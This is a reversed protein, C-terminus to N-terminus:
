EEEKPLNYTDRIPYYLRKATQYFDTKNEWSYFVMSAIPAAYKLYEGNEYEILVVVVIQEDVPKDVPGYGAFWSHTQKVQATGLEATGTKGAIKLPNSYFAAEATGATTVKELSSHIYSYTFDSFDLQVIKEPVTSKVLSGDEGSRIEKVLHPRFSYGRNCLVSMYNAVQLPTAKVDGQGISTIVTHGLHWAKGNNEMWARSPVLGEKEFPIDIGLLNGFGYGLAYQNIRNIGIKLGAQYFYVDCSDAIADRLNEYGHHNPHVWCKFYEANLRYGGSCYFTKETPLIDEEIIATALVPKFVSAPPYIAQIARNLLPNGSTNLQIARKKQANLETQLVYINPDYDPFSAMALIEGTSPKTVIITGMRDALIDEVNKQFVQDITLVLDHGPLSKIERSQIETQVHMRADVSYVKKGEKGRLIQEYEKEIGNKGIHDSFLYGEKKKVALEMADIPATYGLVHALTDLGPYERIRKEKIYVGPLSDSKERIRVVQNFPVYEKILVDSYYGREKQLMKEIDEYQVELVKAMYLLEKQRQVPDNYLELSNVYVEFSTISHALLEGNRDFLKGRIPPVRVHKERFNRSQTAYDINQFIQIYATTILLIIFLIITTIVFVFLRGHLEEQRDTRRGSSLIGM